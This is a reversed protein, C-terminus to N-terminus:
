KILLPRHLEPWSMWEDLKWVAQETYPQLSALPADLVPPFVGQIFSCDMVLGDQFSRVGLCIGQTHLCVQCYLEESESESRHRPWASIAIWIKHIVIFM